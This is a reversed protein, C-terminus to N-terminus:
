YYKEILLRRLNHNLKSIEAHPYDVQKILQRQKASIGDGIQEELKLMKRLQRWREHKFHVQRFTDDPNKVKEDIKKGNIKYDMSAGHELMIDLIKPKNRMIAYQPMNMNVHHMLHEFNAGYSLLDRVILENNRFIARQLASENKHTKNVDAKKEEILWRVIDRRDKDVAFNLLASQGPKVMEVLDQPPITKTLSKLADLDGVEVM